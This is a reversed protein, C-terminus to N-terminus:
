KIDFYLNYHNSCGPNFQSDCNPCQNNCNLYARISLEYKCVGCLIAKTEQENADWTLPLHDSDDAHCTYCPYYKRCCKFKIAIIDKPSHYHICRTQEDIVKGNIKIPTM